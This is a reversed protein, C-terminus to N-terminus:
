DEVALDELTFRDATVLLGEGGTGQLLNKFSLVTKDAGAGRVTVGPVDLSLTASFDYQGAALEIVDAPQAEILATQLQRQAKPGPQIAITRGEGGLAAVPAGCLTTILVILLGTAPASGRRHGPPYPACGPLIAKCTPQNMARQFGSAYALPPEPRSVRRAEM